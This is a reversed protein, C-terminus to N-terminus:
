CLTSSFRRMQHSLMEAHVIILANQAQSKKTASLVGRLIVTESLTVSVVIEVIFAIALATQESECMRSFLFNLFLKDGM